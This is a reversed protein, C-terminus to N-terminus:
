EWQKDDKRSDVGDKIVTIWTPSTSTAEDLNKNHIIWTPAEIFLSSARTFFTPPPTIRTPTKSELSLPSNFISSSSSASQKAIIDKAISSSAGMALKVFDAFHNVYMPASSPDILSNTEQSEKIEEDSVLKKSSDITSARRWLKQGETAGDFHNIYMPAISSSSAIFDNLSDVKEIEESEEDDGLNKTCDIASKKMWLTHRENTTIDMNLKEEKKWLKKNQVTSHISNPENARKELKQGESAEITTITESVRKELRQDKTTAITTNLESTRKWLKHVNINAITTNPENAKKGLKQGKSPGFNKVIESEKKKLKQDKTTEYNTNIENAKEWIKPGEIEVISTITQFAKKGLSQDEIAVVNTNPESVKKWLNFKEITSITLKDM